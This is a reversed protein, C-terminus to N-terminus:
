RFVWGLESLWSGKELETEVGRGDLFLGTFRKNKESPPEYAIVRVQADEDHLVIGSGVFAYPRDTQPSRVMTEDDIYGENQLSEFSLPLRDDHEIAYLFLQAGLKRLSRIVSDDAAAQQAARERAEAARGIQQAILGIVTQKTGRSFRTKMVGNGSTYRCTVLLQEDGRWSEWDTPEPSEVFQAYADRLKVIQASLQQALYAFLLGDDTIAKALEPPGGPESIAETVIAQTTGILLVGHKYAITPRFPIPLPLPITISQVSFDEIQGSQAGFKLAREELAQFLRDDTCAVVLLFETSPVSVFREPKGWKKAADPDVTAFMAVGEVSKLLAEVDFEHVAATAQWKKIADANLFPLPHENLRQLRGWLQEGDLTEGVACLANEPAYRVLDQIRGTTDLRCGTLVARVHQLGDDAEKISVGMGSVELDRAIKTWIELQESSDTGLFIRLVKVLDTSFMVLDAEADLFQLPSAPAAQNQAHLPFLFLVSVVVAAHLSKFPIATM